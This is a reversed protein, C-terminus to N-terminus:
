KHEQLLTKMKDYDDSILNQMKCKMRWLEKLRKKCVDDFDNSKMANSAKSNAQIRIFKILENRLRDFHLGHYVVAKKYDWWYFDHKSDIFIDDNSGRNVRKYKKINRFSIKISLILLVKRNM